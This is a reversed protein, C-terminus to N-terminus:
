LKLTADIDVLLSELWEATDKDGSHAADFMRDFVRERIEILGIRLRDM